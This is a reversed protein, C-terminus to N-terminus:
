ARPAVGRRHLPFYLGQLHRVPTIGRLALLAATLLMVAGTQHAAALPISAGTVLTAIGLAVQILAVGGTANVALRTLPPLMRRRSRVWLAMTAFFTLLALLRHNFQVAVPNEFFNLYWPNMQFYGPPVVHGNMLPFTNYIRGANLGAVFAGSVITVSVLVLVIRVSVLTEHMEGGPVGNATSTEDTGTRLLSVATWLILAYIFLALSLHAALRYQSVDTRDSLGSQVMFWGLAGQVGILLVIASLRPLMQRDIRKQSLFVLLPVLVALGILRGWLRHLYEWFFIQKFEGLSMGRNLQQYETTQQYKSFELGWQDEGLPPMVGSVPRWETISLGSETLRTIGGILVIIFVM